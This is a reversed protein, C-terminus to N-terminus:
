KQTDSSIDIIPLTYSRFISCLIRTYARFLVYTFVLCERCGFLIIKEFLNIRACFSLLKQSTRRCIHITKEYMTSRSPPPYREGRAREVLVQTTPLSSAYESWQRSPTAGGVHFVPLAGRGDFSALNTWRNRCADLFLIETNTWM